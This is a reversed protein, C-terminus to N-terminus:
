EKQSLANLLDTKQKEVIANLDTPQNETSM